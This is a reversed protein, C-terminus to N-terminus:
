VGLDPGIDLPGIWLLLLYWRYIVCPGGDVFFYKLLLFGINLLVFFIFFIIVTWGREIFVPYGSVPGLFLLSGNFILIGHFVKLLFFM